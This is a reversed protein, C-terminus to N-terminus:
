LFHTFLLGHFVVIFFIFHREPKRVLPNGSTPQAFADKLWQTVGGQRFPENFFFVEEGTFSNRVNGLAWHTSITEPCRCFTTRSRVFRPHNQAIGRWLLKTAHHDNLPEIDGCAHIVTDVPRVQRFFDAPRPVGIDPNGRLINAHHSSIGAPDRFSKDISPPQRNPVRDPISIKNM